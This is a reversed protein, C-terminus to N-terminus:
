AARRRSRLGLSVLLFGTFAFVLSPVWLRPAGGGTGGIVPVPVRTWEVAFHTAAALLGIAALVAWSSRNTATAIGVYGLALVAVLAWEWDGSHLWDLVSGGVLVGGVLHLWFSSPDDSGSGAALYLLGVLVTVIATWTGGGSVLDAVFYWGVVASISRLLPFGYRRRYSWAAAVVLAELSLRALSFGAFPAAATSAHLWGFWAWLAGVFVGWAVVAAFAFIGATTWRHRHRHGDAIGSLLAFFLAAWGAYAADGYRSSLYGLAGLASLLVVFGGAYVLFSSTTWVPKREEM